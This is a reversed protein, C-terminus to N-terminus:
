SMGELNEIAAKIAGSDRKLLNELDLLARGIAFGAESLAMAEDQKGAKELQTVFHHIEGRALWLNLTTTKLTLSM